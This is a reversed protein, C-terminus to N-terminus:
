EGLFKWCPPEKGIIQRLRSNNSESYNNTRDIEGYVSFIRAGVTKMWQKHFYKTMFNRWRHGAKKDDAFNENIIDMLLQIGEKM